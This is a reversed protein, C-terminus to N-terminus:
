GAVSSAFCVRPSLKFDVSEVLSQDFVLFVEGLDALQDLGPRHLIADVEIVDPLVEAAVLRGAEFTDEERLTGFNTLIGRTPFEGAVVVVVVVAKL